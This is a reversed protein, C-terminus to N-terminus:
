LGAILQQQGDFATVGLHGNFDFETFGASSSKERLRRRRIGNSQHAPDIGTLQTPARLRDDTDQMM